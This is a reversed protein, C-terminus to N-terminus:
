SFFASAYFTFTASHVGCSFQIYDYDSIDYTQMNHSGAGTHTDITTFTSDGEIRGKVLVTDSATFNAATRLKVEGHVPFESMSNNNTGDKIVGTGTVTFKRYFKESLLKKDM